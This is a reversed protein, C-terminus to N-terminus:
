RPGRSANTSPQNERLVSELAPVGPRASSLAELIARGRAPDGNMVLRGLAFLKAFSTTFARSKRVSAEYLPVAPEWGQEYETILADLYLDRAEIYARIEELRRDDTPSDSTRDIGLAGRLDITPRDLLWRLQRYPPLGRRYTFRPGEFLVRPHDDTNSPAASALEVLDGPGLALLGFLRREDHLLTSRAVRELSAGGLREPLYDAPYPAPSRRGILGLAPYEIDLLALLGIGWPYVENFSAIISRLMPTDLQFLPLWQCFLGGDALREEIARFHERTYLFGSGDRGPHFLDAVVVDYRQTGSRAFRRADGVFLRVRDGYADSRNQPAFYPLVDLAQPVLEVADARVGPYDLVTGVTVGSAVGLFLVRRPDPHLLLPVHAQRRQMRVGQASTGGMSFRNNVRLSRAGQREVVAVSAIAGERFDLIRAGERLSVIRLAPPLTVVLVVTAFGALQVRLSRRRWSVLLLYGLAMAILAGKAGLLPLAAFVAVAPAVSSGLTNLALGWGIGKGLDEAAQVLHCFLASMLASPLLLIPLAMSFEAAAVAPLSDGLALRVSRYLAFAGYLAGIGLTASAATGLALWDRTARFDMTRRLWRQYAAAGAVTGLLYVSLAAAYSYIAGEFVQAMVRVVLSEFAIGLFGCLGLAAALSAPSTDPRTPRGVSGPQLRDDRPSPPSARLAGGGLAGLLASGFSLGVLTLTAARFGLAPIVWFTYGLVGALGGFTNVAYLLGIHRDHASRAFVREMAPLTAGMAITAPAFAMAPLVLVVFLHWAPTPAPGLWLPARDVLFTLVPLLALGWLGIAIELGVYWRGPAPSSRVRGGLWWAGLALGAFFASVVALLAIIEHGLGVGLTRTWVIQYGLGAAGSILLAALRLALLGRM